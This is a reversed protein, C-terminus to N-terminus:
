EERREFKAGCEPCYNIMPVYKECESCVCFAGYYEDSEGVIHSYYEGIYDVPTSTRETRTNWAKIAEAETDYFPYIGGCCDACYVGRRFDYSFTDKYSTSVNDSGCFPCPKIDNM